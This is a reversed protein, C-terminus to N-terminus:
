SIHDGLRRNSTLIRSALSAGNTYIDNRRRRCRQLCVCVCVCLFIRYMIIANNDYAHSLFKLPLDRRATVIYSRTHTHTYTISPPAHMFSFFCVISHVYPRFSRRVQTTEYLLAALCNDLIIAFYADRRSLVVISSIRKFFILFRRSLSRFM